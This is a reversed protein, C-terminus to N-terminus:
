SADGGGGLAAWGARGGSIGLMERESKTLYFAGDPNSWSVSASTSGVAQTMSAVGDGGSSMARRVVNCCVTRLNLAQLEDSTDADAGRSRLKAAVFGTARDLLEAARATEAATLTRWGAELDAVTAYADM